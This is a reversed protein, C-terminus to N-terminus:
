YPWFFFYREEGYFSFPFFLFFFSFSFLFFLFFSFSFFFFCFLCVINDLDFFQHCAKVHMCWPSTVYFDLSILSESFFFFFFFFNFFSVKGKKNSDINGGYSSLIEANQKDCECSLVIGEGDVFNKKTSSVIFFENM